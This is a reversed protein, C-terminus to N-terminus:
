NRFFLVKKTLDRNVKFTNYDVRRIYSPVYKLISFKFFFFLSYYIYQSIYVSGFFHRQSQPFAKQSTKECLHGPTIPALVM